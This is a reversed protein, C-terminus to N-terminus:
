AEEGSNVLKTFGSDRLNGTNVPCRLKAERELRLGARYIAQAVTRGAILDEVIMTRLEPTLERLPDELFKAQGVPHHAQLNEHVYIAYNATFGVIADQGSEKVAKMTLAQLKAMLRNVGEVKAM